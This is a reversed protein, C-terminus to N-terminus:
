SVGTAIILCKPARVEWFEDDIKDGAKFKM